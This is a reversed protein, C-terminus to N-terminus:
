TLYFNFVMFFKFIFDFIFNYFFSMFLYYLSFICNLLYFVIFVLIWYFFLFKIFILYYFTFGIFFLLYFISCFYYFWYLFFLTFLAGIILLVFGYKSDKTKGKIIRKNHYITEPMLSLLKCFIYDESKGDDYLGRLYKASPGQLFSNSFMYSKIFIILSCVYCVILIFFLVKLVWDSYPHILNSFLTAQLTLMAGTLLIMQSNKEDILWNRDVEEDYVHLM